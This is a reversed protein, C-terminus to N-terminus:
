WSSGFDVAIVADVADVADVAAVADVADVADRWNNEVPPCRWYYKTTIALYDGIPNTAPQTNLM